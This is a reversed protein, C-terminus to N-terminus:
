KNMPAFNLEVAESLNIVQSMFRYRKHKVNIFYTAGVPIEQIRFYGFPNSQVTRLNGQSDTLTVVARAIGRGGADAIRGFVPVTSSTPVAAEIAFNAASVGAPDSFGVERVRIRAQTTLPTSNPVNWSFTGTNAQNAAITIPFTAGGDTSLEITVNRAFSETNTWTINRTSAVNVTGSNPAVTTIQDRSTNNTTDRYWGLDRMQQRTLDLNVAADGNIAPEMLLNPSVASSFHSISSGGQFSSPTFLNVSGPLNGFGATIPLSGSAIRVNAGNWVVDENNLASAARQADTMNAWLFGSDEDLMFRSYIDPRGSGFVGTTGDVFSSFGLGHGLEHLLVVLLNITGNPENADLGYYFRTGPNLCALDVDSNITADIHNQAAGLADTGRQKNRLAIHYDTNTFEANPFNFSTFNTGAFGLVGGNSDCPAISDFKANIRTPVASDLFTGWIQQAAHNFLIQRQQGLTAGTNGGENPVAPLAPDNFGEGAADSSTLVTITATAPSMLQEQRTAEDIMNSYFIFEQESMGHRAARTALSDKQITMQPVTEGTELNRGFFHNAEKLDTVCAAVPEGDTDIRALMLNRFRGQLDTLTEGDPFVTETLGESSRNTLDQITQALQRDAVRSKNESIKTDVRDSIENQALTSTFLRQKELILFCVFLVSAVLLLKKM